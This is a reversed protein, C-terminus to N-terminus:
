RAVDVRGVMSAVSGDPTLGTVVIYTFGPSRGRVMGRADVTAIAEDLSIWHPQSLHLDTFNSSSVLKLLQDGVRLKSAPAVVAPLVKTTGTTATTTIENSLGPPSQNGLSDEAIIRYM